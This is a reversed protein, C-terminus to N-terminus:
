LIKQKLKFIKTNKISDLWLFLEFLVNDQKKYCYRPIFVSNLPNVSVNTSLDDILLTNKILYKQIFSIM